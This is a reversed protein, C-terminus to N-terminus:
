RVRTMPLFAARDPVDPQGAAAPDFLDCVDLTPCDCGSATALWAQMATARELLAQVDPLKRVALARLADSARDSELLARVEELSFGARKAVDIVQLRRVTEPAYQRRGALREPEPLVGVREYYRIASTRVGARRAVEGITLTADDM